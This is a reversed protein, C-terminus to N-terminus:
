RSSRSKSGAGMQDTAVSPLAGNDSQWRALHQCAERRAQALADASVPEQLWADLVREAQVMFDRGAPTLGDSALLTKVVGATGARWRAFEADARHRAEGDTFRRQRRWFGSVGLFAYAGQLLSSVPRPDPRWPAYYPQDDDPLTLPVLDLLASLKLHQVEHTLTVGCTYPDPPLSMAVAGFSEASSSSVHDGPKASCPVIVRVAAAVEAAVDPDLLPWAGALVDNWEGAQAASLRPALNSEGPMRFPDLDDIVVSLAGSRLQRLELWGRAGPQVMVRRGTSIVEPPNTRVMATQGDAAAAGLSPLMVRGDTVRVEVEAPLGARIAAAAAVASLGGPEAGPVALDGRLTRLAWAGVPPHRIVFEAADPNQRQVQALLEYGDAALRDGPRAAERVGRLLILHKSYQAAALEGIAEAGGQGRALADFLERTMRHHPISM